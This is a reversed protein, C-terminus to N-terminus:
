KEAHSKKDLIEHKKKLLQSSALLPFVATESNNVM